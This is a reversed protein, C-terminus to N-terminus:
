IACAATAAYMATPTTTSSSTILEGVIVVESASYRDIAGIRQGVMQVRARTHGSPPYTGQPSPWVCTQRSIRYENALVGQKERAVVSAFRTFKSLNSHHSGAKTSAPRKARALNCGTRLM